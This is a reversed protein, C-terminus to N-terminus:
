ICLISIKYNIFFESSASCYEQFYNFWHFGIESVGLGAQMNTIMRLSKKSILNIKVLKISLIIIIM